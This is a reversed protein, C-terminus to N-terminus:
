GLSKAFKAPLVMMKKKMAAGMMRNNPWIIANGRHFQSSIGGKKRERERGGSKEARNQLLLNIFTENM